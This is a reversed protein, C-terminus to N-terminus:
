LEDEEEDEDDQMKVGLFRKKVVLVGLGKMYDEIDLKEFPVAQGPHIERLWRIYDKYFEDVRVSDKKKETIEWRDDIFEIITDNKKKYNNTQEKVKPPEKLGERKYQKYYRDILLWMFASRWGDMKEIIDDDKYFERMPNKIVDDHDIFKSEWPTVRIRRWTGGDNSPISPMDNCILILQFQPIYQIPEKYLGRCYITDNGATVTKMMGVHIQEGKEPENMEVIRKGVLMELEPTANNSNAAKRTLFTIPLTGHYTGFCKSIFNMALSKGNGGGGTWIPFTQRKIHGDLHTAIFTMLYEKMDIDPMLQSFYNEIEMIIPDDPTFDDRYDCGTCLTIYDDPTGARFKMNKLDYVGNKFGILDKNSDLKELFEKDYLIDACEAIIDSKYKRNGLNKTLTRLEKIKVKTSEFGKGPDDYCSRAYYNAVPKFKEVLDESIAHGLPASGDLKNWRHDKFEWFQKSKPSSCKFKHGFLVKIVKAISYHAGNEAEVLFPTVLERKVEIYKDKNDELAWSELSPMGYGTKRAGDWIDRCAKMNFKKGCKKSFEIWSPWLAPTGESINHLCWGVSIWTDYDSARKKSLLTVLSKAMDIKRKRESTNKVGNDRIHDIQEVIRLDTLNMGCNLEIGAGVNDYIDDLINDNIVEAKKEVGLYKEYIMQETQPSLKRSIYHTDALTRRISLLGPLEVMNIVDQDQDPKEAITCKKLKRNYMGIVEYPTAKPKSSGYMLIGNPRKGKVLCKDIIDDVTNTHEIHSFTGEKICTRTLEDLVFARGMRDTVFLPFYIHLGDKFESGEKRITACEKQTVIAIQDSMDINFNYDIINFVIGILAKIQKTDMLRDFADFTNGYKDRNPYVWDLDIVLQSEDLPREVISFEHENFESKTNKVFDVAGCYLETFREIDDEPISYSSLYGGMSTHTIEKPSGKPVRHTGMFDSYKHLPTQDMHNIIDSM